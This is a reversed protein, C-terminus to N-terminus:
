ALICKASVQLHGGPVSKRRTERKAENKQQARFLLIEREVDRSGPITVGAGAYLTFLMLM